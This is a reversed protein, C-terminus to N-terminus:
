CATIASITFHGVTIGAIQGGSLGAEEPEEPKSWWDQIDAGRQKLGAWGVSKCKLIDCSPFAM